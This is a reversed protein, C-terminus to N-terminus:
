LRVPKGDTIEYWDPITDTFIHEKVALGSEGDISGALISTFDEKENKWFMASGCVSCFGRKAEPITEPSAQFWKLTTETIRLDSNKAATAAYYLGTQKRCQSCHCAVIPRM